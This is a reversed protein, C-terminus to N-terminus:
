IEYNDARETLENYSEILEDRHASDELWAICDDKSGFFVYHSIEVDTGEVVVSARLACGHQQSYQSYLRGEHETGPYRLVLWPGKFSGSEPVSDRIYGAMAEMVREILVRRGKVIDFAM